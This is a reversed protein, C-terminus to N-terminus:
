LFAPSLCCLTELGQSGSLGRQLLCLLGNFLVHPGAIQREELLDLLGRKVAQGAFVLRESRIHEFFMVLQLKFFVVPDFSPRGCVAYCDHVLDRVFSLDLVQDLHRYFHDAPMLEELSVAPAALFVRRKCGMMARDGPGPTAM